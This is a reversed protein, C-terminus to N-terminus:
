AAVKTRATWEKLAEITELGAIGDVTIGARDQFTEVARKTKRGYSGDTLLPPHAFGLRNLATQITKADWEAGHMDGIGVMPVINPAQEAPISEIKSRPLALTPALKAASLMLPVCGLQQDWENPDWVGDRIYKGGQYINTGAWVYGSPVGHANPGFGNYLNEEYIGCEMTWDNVLNLKDLILADIAGASWSRFPGRGRPVLRTIRNLPEGNGLYTAFNASSEREHLAMIVIAPVGTARSVDEYSGLHTLLHAVVADARSAATKDVVCRDLQAAIQPEMQTFPHQM